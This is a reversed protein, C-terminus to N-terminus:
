LDVHIGILRSIGDFERCFVKCKFVVFLYHWEICRKADLYPPRLIMPRGCRHPKKSKQVSCRYCVLTNVAHRNKYIIFALTLLLVSCDTTM